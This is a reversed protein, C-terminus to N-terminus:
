TRSAQRSATKSATKSDTQLEHPAGVHSVIRRVKGTQPDASIAAVPEAEVDLLKELDFKRLQLAISRRVKDRDLSVGPLLEIRLRVRNRDVQVAQWERVEYLPDFVLDFVEGIVRRYSDGDRIWIVDATRGEIRGILPLRSGCSCSEDALTIQDGLEYRIFPQVRNALNTVLVKHGLAGAPVPLGDEDVVEVIVWDANIHAGPRTPCGNSLFM